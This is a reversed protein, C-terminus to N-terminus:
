RSADYVITGGAVTTVVRPVDRIWDVEFPDGELVVLDGLRGPAIAGADDLGLAYAAGATYARLAEAVSLNQDSLFPEGETTRGSVAARLGAIPDCSVVPWDSGFALLAGAEVLRRFAFTGRLRDRGLRRAAFRADEAKHLPQMSAIVGAFRAIDGPEIQQAHEIRPRCGRGIREVVDLALRAAEDGIAHMSPSLGAAAVGAAWKDLRGAAALEGLVGRNGPDDHYPELLRATRAGLTGDIFAKYGIVDLVGDGEFGRGYGTELPWACDLLTIRCRLTLRDRLPRFIREVDAAYEMSGVATLGCTHCRRQAELLARQSAAADPPPILPNVLQWVAAELM